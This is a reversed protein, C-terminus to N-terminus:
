ADPKPHNKEIVVVVGLFEVAQAWAKEIADSDPNRYWASEWMRKPNIDWRLIQGQAYEKRSPMCEIPKLEQRPDECKLVVLRADKVENRCEPDSYFPLNAHLVRYPRTPMEHQVEPVPSFFEEKKKQGLLASLLSM